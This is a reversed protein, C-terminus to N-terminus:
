VMYENELVPQTRTATAAPARTEGVSVMNLAEGAEAAMEIREMEKRQKCKQACLALLSLIGMVALGVVVSGVVIWVKSNTEKKKRHGPPAIPKPPPAPSISEVVISFHGQKTTSCGKGSSVSSFNIQGEEGLWVCKAAFGDPAPRVESFLISIPDGSARIDLEPLGTASLNGADYAVLGIVPALYSYGDLPYYFESWNGLNHYVLVLREVYPRVIVGKPITFEKYNTFGKRRLSGSRLRLAAVEIGTMDSPVPGDYPTGTKPRKGFGRAFFPPRNEFAPTKPWIM